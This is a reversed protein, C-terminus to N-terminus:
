PGLYARRNVKEDLEHFIQEDSVYDGRDLEAIGNQIDKRLQDRQGLLSLAARLVESENEYRGGQLIAHVMDELDPTIELGM